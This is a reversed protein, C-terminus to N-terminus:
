SSPIRRYRPRTGHCANAAIGDLLRDPILQPDASELAKRVAAVVARARAVLTLQDGDPPVVRDLTAQAETLAQYVPHSEVGDKWVAVTFGRRRKAVRGVRTPPYEVATEVKYTYPM